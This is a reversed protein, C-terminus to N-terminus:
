LPSGNDASRHRGRADLGGSLAEPLRIAVMLSIWGPNKEQQANVKPGLCESTIELTASSM